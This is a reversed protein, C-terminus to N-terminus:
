SDNFPLLSLLRWQGVPCGVSRVLRRRNATLYESEGFLWGQWMSCGSTVHARSGAAARGSTKVCPCAQMSLATRLLVGAIAAVHAVAPSPNCGGDLIRSCRRWWHPARVVSGAAPEASRPFELAGPDFAAAASSPVTTLRATVKTRGTGLLPVRAFGGSNGLLPVSARSACLRAELGQAEVLRRINRHIVM